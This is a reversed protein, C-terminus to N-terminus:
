ALWPIVLEEAYIAGKIGFGGGVDPAILRIRAADVGLHHALVQSVTHPSQTAAWVTLGGDAEVQALVGRTEIPIGTLRQMAFRRRVVRDAQAFAADVDGTSVRVLASLNDGLDPHLLPADPRSAAAADMVVPLPEYDVVVQEAADEALYRDEAVVVAVPEGVYRVRDVAVLHQTELRILPDVRERLVPSPPKWVLTPLPGLREATAAGAVATVVGPCARAAALDVGRILAHAHPSRVVAAHLTGPPDLDDVYRGRGTLLRQDEKRRVGAGILGRA